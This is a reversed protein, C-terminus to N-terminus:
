ELSNLNDAILARRAPSYRYRTAAPTQDRRHTFPYLNQSPRTPMKQRPTALATHGHSAASNETSPKKTEAPAPKDPLPKWSFREDFPLRPDRDGFDYKIDHSYDIITKLWEEPPNPEKKVHPQPAPAPTEDAVPEITSVPKGFRYECLLRLAAVQARPDTSTKIINFMQAWADLWDQKTVAQDILERAYKLQANTKRGANRRRGGHNTSNSM